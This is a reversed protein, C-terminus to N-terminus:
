THTFDYLTITTSFGFLETIRTFLTQEIETSHKGLTYAARCMTMLPLSAHDVELLEGLGGQKTLWNYIALESGV